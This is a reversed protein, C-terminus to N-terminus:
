CTSKDPGPLKAHHPWEVKVNCVRLSKMLFGENVLSQPTGTQLDLLVNCHTDFM